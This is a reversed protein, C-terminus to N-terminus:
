VTRCRGEEVLEKEICAGNLYRWLLYDYPEVLFPHQGELEHSHLLKM